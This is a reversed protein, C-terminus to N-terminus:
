PSLEADSDCGCGAAIQRYWWWRQWNVPLWRSYRGPRLLLDCGYRSQDPQWALAPCAGSQVGFVRRAVPCPEAACCVGCGNCPQGWVPKGPASLHLYITQLM